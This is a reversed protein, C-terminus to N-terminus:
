YHFLIPSPLISLNLPILISSSFVLCSSVPCSSLILYSLLLNLTTILYSKLLISHPSCYHIASVFSASYTIYAKESVQIDTPILRAHVLDECGEDAQVGLQTHQSTVYSSQSATHSVRLAVTVSLHTRDILRQTFPRM